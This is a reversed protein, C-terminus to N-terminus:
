GELSADAEYLFKTGPMLVRNVSTSQIFVTYNSEPDPKLTQNVDGLGAATRARTGTIIAGTKKNQAVVEKYSQVTESKTLEYFGRGKEFVLGNSQVFGKIDIRSDVDLVQFRSGIKVSRNSITRGALQDLTRLVHLSPKQPRVALQDEFQSLQGARQYTIGCLIDVIDSFQPLQLWCGVGINALGKYFTNSSPRGMAQITHIQVGMEKLLKAENTWDLENKVFGISGPVRKLYGVAHPNADGIVVLAKNIGHTWNFERAKALVYEYCEDADGGGTAPAGHIFAIVDEVNSTLDLKQYCYNGDCYDGHAIIGIRLNSIMKFLDKAITAISRRVQTLCPYMSGTTDFSFVLDITEKQAAVRKTTSKSM